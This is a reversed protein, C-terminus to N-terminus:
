RSPILNQPVSKFAAKMLALARAKGGPSTALKELDELVCILTARYVPSLPASLGCAELANKGFVFLIRCGLWRLGSWFAESNAVFADNERMVCPWFTHTGVPQGLERILSQMFNKRLQRSQQQIDDRAEEGLDAALDLYTWAALGARTKELRLRWNEPLNERPLPQWARFASKQEATASLVPQKDGGGVAMKPLKGDQRGAKAEPATEEQPINIPALIYKLGTQLWFATSPTIYEFAM